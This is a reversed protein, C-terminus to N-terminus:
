FDLLSVKASLWRCVLEALTLWGAAVTARRMPHIFRFRYGDTSNAFM